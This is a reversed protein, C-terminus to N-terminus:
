YNHDSTRALKLSNRRPLLATDFYTQIELFLNRLYSLLYLQHPNVLIVLVHIMLFLDYSFYWNFKADCAITM